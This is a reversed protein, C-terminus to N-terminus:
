KNAALCTAKIERIVWEIEKEKLEQHCPFQIVKQSYEYSIPCTSVSVEPDLFEGFHWIPVGKKKLKDFVQACHNFYVPVVVPAIHDALKTHLIHCGEIDKLAEVYRMYTQRRKKVLETMATKKIIFRSVKSAKTNLWAPDFSFGGEAASPGISASGRDKFFVAKIASWLYDKIRTFFGLIKGVFSLRNFSIAREIITLFAKVEMHVSPKELKIQNLPHKNSALLGGDFVPFFKMTSAIAYDAYYGVPHGCFKGFFSHACDEIMILDHQDCFSRLEKVNQPFGFFHTVVIVKTKPTLLETISDINISTDANIRYFVATAGTHRVPAVMSECHYAPVLVEDGAGINENILALATAIRGSTVFRKYKASAISPANQHDNGSFSSFSLVPSIPAKAPPYNNSNEEYTLDNEKTTDMIPYLRM